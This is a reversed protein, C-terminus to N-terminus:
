CRCISSYAGSKALEPADAATLPAKVGVAFTMTLAFALLLVGSCLAFWRLRWGLILGLALLVEAVTAAWALIPVLPPPAFWNLTAV